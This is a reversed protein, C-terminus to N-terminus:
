PGRPQSTRAIKDGVERLHTTISEIRGDSNLAELLAREARRYRRETRSGRFRAAARHGPPVRVIEIRSDTPRPVTAVDYTREMVFRYEHAGDSLPRHSVPVTMNMKVNEVNRGFIYAALRQFAVRGTADYTGTVITQAVLYGDYRRIEYKDNKHVVVHRPAEYRSM